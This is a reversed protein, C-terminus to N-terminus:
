RTRGAHRRGVGAARHRDPLVRGTRQSRHATGALRALRANPASLIGTNIEDSAGARRRQRGEGRRHAARWRGADRVIRGYGTPDDLRATLLCLADPKSLLQQLTDPRILPVDGYLVLTAGAPPLHPLAQMVRTGPEAAATGAARLQCRQGRFSTPCRRGVTAMSSSSARPSCRAPPTSSTARAAAPGGAPAPGQASGLRMRTGKGAALIVVSLNSM